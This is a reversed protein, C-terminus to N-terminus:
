ERVELLYARWGDQEESYEPEMTLDKCYLRAIAPAANAVLGSLIVHGFSDLHRRLTPQLETLLEATLNALVLSFTGRLEKASRHEIVIRSELGNRAVNEKCVKTAVEDNDVALVHTAPWLKAAAIALIGSGAGLDVVSKPAPQNHAMREMARIVLATSAHLGTGFAMGPDLEVVLDQARPEYTEWTPKVVIYRGVRNVKFHQKYVEQWDEPAVPESSWSWPDVTQGMEKLSDLLTSVRNVHGEVSSEPLWIVLETTDPPLKDSTEADRQEVGGGEETLLSATAEAVGNPLSFLVKVLDKVLV